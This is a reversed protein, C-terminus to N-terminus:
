RSAFDKAAINKLEDLLEDRKAAYPQYVEPLGSLIQDPPDDKLRKITAGPMWREYDRAAVRVAEVKDLVQSFYVAAIAEVKAFPSARLKVDEGHVTAREKDDLWLDFEYVAQVLEEFKDARHKRKEERDKKQQLIWPGLAGGALTLLGGLLTQFFPGWMIAVKKRSEAARVSTWCRYWCTNPYTFPRKLLGGEIHYARSM